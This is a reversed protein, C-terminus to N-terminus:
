SEKDLEEVEGKLLDTFDEKIEEPNQPLDTDENKDINQEDESSDKKDKSEVPLKQDVKQEVKVPKPKVEQSTKRPMQRSQQQSPYQSQQQNNRQVNSFLYNLYSGTQTKFEEFEKRLSVIEQKLSKNQSSFYLFVFVFVLGNIIMIMTQSNLGKKLVGTGNHTDNQTDNASDM